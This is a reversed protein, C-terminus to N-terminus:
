LVNWIWAHKKELVEIEEDEMQFGLYSFDCIGMFFHRREYQKLAHEKTYETILEGISKVSVGAAYKSTRIQPVLAWM